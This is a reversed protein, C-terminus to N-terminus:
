VLVLFPFLFHILAVILSIKGIREFRETRLSEIYADERKDSYIFFIMFALFFVFFAPIFDGIIWPGPDVPFLLTGLGIAVGALFYLRRARKVERLRERFLILFSLQRKWNEPLIILSSIIIYSISLFYFQIM